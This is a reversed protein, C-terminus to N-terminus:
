KSSVFKTIAVRVSHWYAKYGEESLHVGASDFVNKVSAGSTLQVTPKWFGGRHRWFKVKDADQFGKGLVENVMLVSDKLEPSAPFLLLQSVIISAAPLHASLCQVFDILRTAIESATGHHSYRIDNEGLHLFVIAPNLKVVDPLLKSICKPGPSVTAGGMGLCHVQIKCCDFGLNGFDEQHQEMYDGFRRVYSHGLICVTTSKSASAMRYMYHFTQCMNIFSSFFIASFTVLLFIVTDSACANQLSCAALWISFSGSPVSVKSFWSFVHVSLFWRVAGCVEFSNCGSCCM